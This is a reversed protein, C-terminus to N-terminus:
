PNSTGGPVGGAGVEMKFDLFVIRNDIGQVIPRSRFLAIQAAISEAILPVYKLRGDWIMPRSTTKIHNTQYYPRLGFTPLFTYMHLFPNNKSHTKQLPLNYLASIRRNKAAPYQCSSFPQSFPPHSLDYQRLIKGKLLLKLLTSQPGYRGQRKAPGNRCIPYPRSKQLTALWHWSSTNGNCRFSQCPLHDSCHCLQRQPMTIYQQIQGISSLFEAPLKAPFIAYRQQKAWVLVLQFPCLCQNKKSLPRIQRQVIRHNQAQVIFLLRQRRQRQWWFQFLFYRFSDIPSLKQSSKSLGASQSSLLNNQTYCTLPLSSM